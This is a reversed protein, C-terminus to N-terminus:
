LLSFKIMLILPTSIIRRHMTMNLKCNCCKKKNFADPDEITDKICDQLTTKLHRHIVSITNWSDNKALQSKPCSSNDCSYFKEFQLTLLVMPRLPDPAKIKDSLSDVTADTSEFSGFLCLSGKFLEIFEDKAQLNNITQNM